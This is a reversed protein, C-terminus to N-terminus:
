AMFLWPLGGSSCPASPSLSSPSEAVRVLLLRRLIAMAHLAHRVLFDRTLSISLVGRPVLIQQSVELTETRHRVGLTRGRGPNPIRSHRRGTM